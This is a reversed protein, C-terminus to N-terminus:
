PALPDHEPTLLQKKIEEIVYEIKNVVEENRFRIIKLDYKEIEAARGKDREIVDELNHISGDIEIVLKAKHCYFDVVFREIPHQRRFKFGNIKKARLYEWLIKEAKTERKKLEKARDQIHETANYYMQFNSKPLPKENM